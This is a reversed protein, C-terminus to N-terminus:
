SCVTGYFSGSRGGSSIFTMSSAFWVGFFKFPFLSWRIGDDAEDTFWDLFMLGLLYPPYNIDSLLPFTMSVLPSSPAIILLPFSLLIRSSDIALSAPVPFPSLHSLFLLIGCCIIFLHNPPPGYVSASTVSRNLCSRISMPWWLSSWQCPSLIPFSAVIM